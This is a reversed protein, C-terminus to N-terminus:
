RGRSKGIKIIVLVIVGAVALGVFLAACFVRMKRHRLDHPLHPFLLKGLASLIRNM